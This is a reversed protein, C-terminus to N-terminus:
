KLARKVQGPPYLPGDVHQAQYTINAGGASGDIAFAYIQTPLLPYLDNDSLVYLVHRGDPLDPGWGLGEIKEAIVDKITRVADVKYSTDLLDIFLTKTVPFVQPILAALQAGTEPLSAIGAVNTAGTLDIKYIRKVNPTQAANPPTPVLSRNDREIALFQHDNIALLDNVGKGQNIADVVYVYEWTAGTQLDVKLIRNLLGRRGPPTLANLGNDQLLSNQMIGFLYRGDPTIALGEMGRNAQRGAVNFSPYLEFSNGAGDIDGSPHEILFKAPVAIRRVLHGQRNFESIYPGYEDSVFFNGDRSVAVGEPDFRQDFASSDGVFSQNGQDKLFRTDLLLARINPFAAGVSVTLHLFNFRDRYPVDTRGDFPGRDPVALFVNDFGTYTLASGFGGMTAQDICSTPNDISCIQQGALGSLDLANGAVGGVGILTVGPNVARIQAVFPSILIVATAAALWRQRM